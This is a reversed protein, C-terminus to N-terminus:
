EDRPAARLAQDLAALRAPTGVDVWRGAYHEGSVAGARLATRLLPALPFVGPRCGAFLAPRYVGIGSFTLRQGENRADVRGQGDLAFDGDPHHTPNDVLVLHALGAPAQRLRAYPYDTWVDANVVVFAPGGLQALANFIGGGTELAGPPEPAYTIRAGFAAGEGLAAVLQEGRYAYNIIIESFGAAVLATIQHVILPTGGAELLAKPLVDTLPRMREGRGAALIMAKM